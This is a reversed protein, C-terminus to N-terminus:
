VSVSRGNEFRKILYDSVERKIAAFAVDKTKNWAKNLYDNPAIRGVTRMGDKRTPIKSVHGLSVMLWYYADNKLTSRPGIWITPAKRAVSIGISRKLEGPKHIVEKTTIAGKSAHRHISKWASKNSVPAGNKMAAVTPRAARKFIPLLVKRQERIPIQKFLSTFEELGEMQVSFRLNQGNM